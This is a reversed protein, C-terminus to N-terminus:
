ANAHSESIEESDGDISLIGTFNNLLLVEGNIKRCSFWFDVLIDLHIDTDFFAKMNFELIVLTGIVQLVADNTFHVELEDSQFNLLHFDGNDLSFGISSSGLRVNFILSNGFIFDHIAAWALSFNNGDSHVQSGKIQARGELGRVISESNFIEQVKNQNVFFISSIELLLFDSKPSLLLYLTDPRYM